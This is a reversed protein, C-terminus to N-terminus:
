CISFDIQFDTGKVEQQCLQDMWRNNNDYLETINQYKIYTKKSCPSYSGDVNAFVCNGNRADCLDKSEGMAKLMEMYCTEVKAYGNTELIRNALKQLNKESLTGKVEGKYNPFNKLVCIGKCACARAYVFIDDFDKCNDERAVWNIYSALHASKAAILAAKALEASDRSNSNVASYYGNLSVFIANLGCKKLNELRQKTMNYGSTALIIQADSKCRIYSIIESLCSYTGPEGGTLQFTNFGDALCQDVVKRAVAETMEADEKVM